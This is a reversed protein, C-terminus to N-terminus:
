SELLYACWEEETSQKIITLKKQKFLNEMDSAWINMIGSLIILSGSNTFSLIRDLNHEILVSHLNACILDFTEGPKFNELSVNEFHINASNKAANEVSKEYAPKDPEIGTTKAAGLINALIALVGSGSGIDLMSKIPRMTFIDEILKVCMRTTPHTGAGFSNEPSIIIEIEKGLTFGDTVVATKESVEVGLFSETWANIWDRNEILTIEAHAGFEEKISEINEEPVVAFIEDGTETISQAGLAFLIEEALVIDYDRVSVKYLIM